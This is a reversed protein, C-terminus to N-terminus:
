SCLPQSPQSIQEPKVENWLADAIVPKDAQRTLHPKLCLLLTAAFNTRSWTQYTRSNM